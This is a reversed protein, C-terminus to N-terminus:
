SIFVQFSSPLKMADHLADHIYCYSDISDKIQMHFLIAPNNKCESLEGM